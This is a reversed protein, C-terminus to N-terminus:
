EHKKEPEKEIHEIVADFINQLDKNIEQNREESYMLAKITSFRIFQTRTVINERFLRPRISDVSSEIEIKDPVNELQSKYLLYLPSTKLLGHNRYVFYVDSYIFQYNGIVEGSVFQPLLTSMSWTGLHKTVIMKEDNM